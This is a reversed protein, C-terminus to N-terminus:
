QSNPVPHTEFYERVGRFTRRHIVCPGIRKLADRHELTPYGMHRGFGYEPFQQDYEQMLRDRTVKAIISAAGIVAVRADGDVIARSPIVGALSHRGDVLILSVPDGPLNEVARQMALLSARLINLTDIETVTALGVAFPLEERISRYRMERQLASLVKSDCAQRLAPCDRYVVAAAVVPGALPGRGAEDVGCLSQIGSAILTEEISRALDTLGFAPQIKSPNVGGAEM